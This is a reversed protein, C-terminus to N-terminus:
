LPKETRPTAASSPASTPAGNQVYPTPSGQPTPQVSQAHRAQSAGRYAIAIIVIGSAVSIWNKIELPFGLFPFVIVWLGLISIWQYKSM